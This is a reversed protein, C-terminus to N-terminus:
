HAARLREDKTLSYYECMAGTAIAHTEAGVIGGWRSKTLSMRGDFENGRELMWDLAKKTTAGFEPSDPLEGHGLFCLLALATMGPKYEDSWSGDANQHDKLWRLGALVAKESKEVGGYKAMAARRLEPHMRSRLLPPISAYRREVQFLPTQTTSQARAHNGAPFFTLSGILLSFIRWIGAIASVLITKM